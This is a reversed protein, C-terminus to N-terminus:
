PQLLAALTATLTITAMPHWQTVCTCPPVCVCVRVRPRAYVCVCVCVRVRVCVCACVCVCVCIYVGVRMLTRVHLLCCMGFADRKTQIRFLFFSTRVCVRCLRVCVCARVCERVCVRVCVFVCHLRACSVASHRRSGASRM